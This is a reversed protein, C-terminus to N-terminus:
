GGTGLGQWHEPQTELPSGFRQRSIVVIFSRAGFPCPASVSLIEVAVHAPEDRQDAARQQVAITMTDAAQEVPHDADEATLLDVDLDLAVQLAVLSHVVLHQDRQGLREPHRDQGGVAHAKGGLGLPREVVHEGADPACWATGPPRRSAAM